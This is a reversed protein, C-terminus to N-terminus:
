EQLRGFQFPHMGDILFAFDSTAREDHCKRGLMDLVDFRPTKKIMTVNDKNKGLLELLINMDFNEDKRRNVENFGNLGGCKALKQLSKGMDAEDSVGQDYEQILLNLNPFMFYESVGKTQLRKQKENVIKKYFQQVINNCQPERCVEELIANSDRRTGVVVSEGYDIFKVL